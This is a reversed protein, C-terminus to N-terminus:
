INRIIGTHIHLECQLIYHQMFVCDAADSVISRLMRSDTSDTITVTDPIKHSLVWICVLVCSLLINVRNISYLILIHNSLSSAPPLTGGIDRPLYTRPGPLAPLLASLFTLRHHLFRWGPTRWSLTTRSCLLTELFVLAPSLSVVTLFLYLM